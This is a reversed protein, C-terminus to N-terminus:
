CLDNRADGAKIEGPKAAGSEGGPRRVAAGGVQRTAAAVAQSRPPVPPWRSEFWCGIDTTSYSIYIYLIYINNYNYIYIIIIIYIPTSLNAILTYIHTYIINNFHNSM